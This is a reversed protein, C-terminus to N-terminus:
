LLRLSTLCKININATNDRVSLRAVGITYLKRSGNSRLTAVSLQRKLVYSRRDIFVLGRKLLQLLQKAVNYRLLQQLQQFSPKDEDVSARVDQFALEIDSNLM